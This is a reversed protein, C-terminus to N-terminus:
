RGAVRLTGFRRHEGNALPVTVADKVLSALWAPDQWADDGDAPLASVAVASYSGPPLAEIRFSGDADTATSRLYRSRPFWLGRDLPFVVVHAAPTPRGEADAVVGSVEAVRDTLIVEVDALSEESRGFSVPRDTADIGNVRVAQLTWGAPLNSVTLRRPGNLGALVFRGDAGLDARAWTNPTLDADAPMAQIRLTRLPPATSVGSSALVVRGTVTSGASAQVQLDLVDSDTVTVAVAAFEGETYGNRSNQQTQMVYIGPAVHPFEFRGDGAIRANVAEIFAANTRRSTLLQVRGGMTPQGAANRIRGGVRYTPGRVLDLDLNTLHAASEVQVFRADVARATGPYYTRAYGPLDAAAVEHVSASVVYAGPPMGFLRYEGRDDTRRESPGVPVLQRRGALYRVQLLRVIAGQVPDGEDDRVRGTVTSWPALSLVVDDITQEATVTLERGATRLTDQTIAERGVGAASYGAKSALVRYVGVPLGTFVFGGDRDSDATRVDLFRGVRALAVKARSLPTGATSVVRGRVHGVQAAVQLSTASASGALELTPLASVVSLPQSASRAAPVLFNIDDIDDGPGPTFVEAENREQADPFYTRHQSRGAVATRGAIVATQATTGTTTLAVVIPAEALGGLRYEGRDDTEAQAIARNRGATARADEATVRAGVVPDGADDIVRGSVAGGPSLAIVLSRSPPVPVSQPAYGTKQASVRPATSLVALSFRGDLDTLVMSSGLADRTSPGGIRVRAVPAGDSARVVRGTIQVTSPPASQGGVADAVVGVLSLCLLVRRM